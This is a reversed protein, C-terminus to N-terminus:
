VLDWLARPEEQLIRLELFAEQLATLVLSCWTQSAGGKDTMQWYGLLNQVSWFGKQWVWSCYMGETKHQLVGSQQVAAHGKCTKLCNSSVFLLQTQLGWTQWVACLASGPGCVMCQPHLRDTLSKGAHTGSWLNSEPKKNNPFLFIHQPQLQPGM